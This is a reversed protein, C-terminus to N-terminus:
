QTKRREPQDGTTELKVELYKAYAKSQERMTQYFGRLITQCAIEAEPPLRKPLFLTVETNKEDIKVAAGAKAVDNIACEAMMVGTSVMACVIDQGIPAYGSHGRSHFGVIRGDKEFFCLRIM